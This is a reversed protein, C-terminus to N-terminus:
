SGDRAFIPWLSQFNDVTECVYDWGLQAACDSDYECQHFERCTAGDSQDDYTVMLSPTHNRGIEHLPCFCMHSQESVKEQSGGPIVKLYDDLTLWKYDFPKDDNLREIQDATMQDKEFQKM